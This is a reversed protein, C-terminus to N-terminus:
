CTQPSCPAARTEACPPRGRATKTRLPKSTGSSWGCTVQSPADEEHIPPRRSEPTRLLDRFGSPSQFQGQRGLPGLLHRVTARRRGAGAGTKRRCQLGEAHGLDDGVSQVERSLAGIGSDVQGDRPDRRKRHAWRLPSVWEQASRGGAPDLSRHLFAGRVLIVLDM